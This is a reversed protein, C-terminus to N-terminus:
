QSFLPCAMPIRFFCSRGPSVTRTFPDRPICMSSLTLSRSCYFSYKCFAFSYLFLFLKEATLSCRFLEKKHLVSPLTQNKGPRHLFSAIFESKKRFLPQMSLISTTSQLWNTIFQLSHLSITLPSRVMPIFFRSSTFSDPSLVMIRFIFFNRLKNAARATVTVAAKEAGVCACAALPAVPTPKASCQM